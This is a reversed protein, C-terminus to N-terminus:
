PNNIRYILKDTLLPLMKGKIEHGARVHHVSINSNAQALMLLNGKVVVPDLSGHIIDIPIKLSYADVYSTQNVISAELAAAYTRIKDGEFKYNSDILKYKVARNTIKSFQEPHNHIATYIELLVKQRRPISANKPLQPRYFPPSCLILSKVVKPYQKAIEVAVLSGLSHGIIIAKRRLGKKRYSSVISKAQRKADYQVWEPKPSQGFGLLDVTIIKVNEPLKKIVADWTASSSGIGHILIVTAISRKPKRIIEMHM